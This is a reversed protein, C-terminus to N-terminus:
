CRWSCCSIPCTPRSRAHRDRRRRRLHQLRRVAARRRPHRLVPDHDASQLGQRPEAALGAPGASRRGDIFQTYYRDNQRGAPIYQVQSRWKQGVSKFTLHCSRRRSPSSSDARAHARQSGKSDNPSQRATLSNRATIHTLREIPTPCRDRTASAHVGGDHSRSAASSHTARQVAGPSFPAACRTSRIPVDHRSWSAGCEASFAITDNM